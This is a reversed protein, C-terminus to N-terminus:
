GGVREHLIRGSADTYYSKGDACAHWGEEEILIGEDDFLYKGAPIVWAPDGPHDPHYGAPLVQARWVFLYLDYPQGPQEIRAQYRLKGDPAKIWGAFTIGDINYYTQGAYNPRIRLYDTVAYCTRPDAPNREPNLYYLHGNLLVDGDESVYVSGGSQTPPTSPTPPTVTAATGTQLVGKEDFLYRRGEGTPSEIYRSGTATTGDENKYTYVPNKADETVPRVVNWNEKELTPVDPVGPTSPNSPTTPNSPSSPTDPEDPTPTPTPTDPTDPKDPKDPKDPEDPTVTRTYGCINCVTDTGDDYVHAAYGEKGSNETIPCDSATCEHWHGTEDSSWNDSLIHTHNVAKGCNQCTGDEIPGVHTGNECFHIDGPDNEDRVFPDSQNWVVKATNMLMDYTPKFASLKSLATMLSEWQAQTGGFYITGLTTQQFPSGSGVEALTKVSSPIYMYIVYTCSFFMEPPLATIGEPLSVFNLKYCQTFANAGLKLTGASPMFRVQTLETCSTFAGAGLETLSRPFDVYGLAICGHFAREGITKVGEAIDVSALSKCERFADDGVSEVSGPIAISIINSERFASRGISVVTSPLSVSSLDKNGFFAYAGVSTVGSEIDVSYVPVKTGDEQNAATEWSPAEQNNRDYDKMEGSGTITLVGKNSIKWQLTGNKGPETGEAVVAEEVDEGSYDAPYRTVLFNASSMLQDKSIARGWHVTGNYNGEAVIVGSSTIRLVTVFHSNNVRLFDGVRIDEFEFKDYVYAPCSGFVEDSLLFCFAACGVGLQAGKIPGGKFRYDGLTGKSGYPEYNTWTTGEPYQNKLRGVMTEYAETYTPYTEGARAMGLMQAPASASPNKLAYANPMVSVCLCLALAMSILRKKM